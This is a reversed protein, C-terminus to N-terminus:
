LDTENYTDSDYKKILDLLRTLIITEKFVGGDFSLGRNTAVKVSHLTNKINESVWNRELSM